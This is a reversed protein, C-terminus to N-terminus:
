AAVRGTNREMRWDSRVEHVQHEELRRLRPPHPLHGSRLSRERLRLKIEVCVEFLSVENIVHPVLFTSRFQTAERCTTIFKCNQM